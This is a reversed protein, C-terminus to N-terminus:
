RVYFDRRNEWLARSRIIPRSGGRKGSNAVILRNPRSTGYAANALKEEARDRRAQARPSRRPTPTPTRPVSGRRPLALQSPVHMRAGTRTVGRGGAGPITVRRVRVSLGGGINVRTVGPPTSPASHNMKPQKPGGGITKRLYYQGAVGAAALALGGTAAVVAVRRATSRSKGKGKGKRKRASALQAKRLAARQKATRAM